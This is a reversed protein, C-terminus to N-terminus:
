QMKTTASATGLLGQNSLSRKLSNEIHSTGLSNTNTKNAMEFDKFTTAQKMYSGFFTTYFPVHYRTRSGLSINLKM